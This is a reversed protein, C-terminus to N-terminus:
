KLNIITIKNRGLIVRKDKELQKLLRSIVERYTGLEDALEKHTVRVERSGSEKSKRELAEIIRQDMKQFAIANITDLMEELRKNYLQIIFRNWAPYEEIWRAAVDAPILLLEAKEEVVATIKSTENNLVGRFTMLCTEGPKISYLYIEKGDESGRIVRISGSLVIPFNKIYDGEKIIVTGPEFSKIVSNATIQKQFENNFDGFIQKLDTM